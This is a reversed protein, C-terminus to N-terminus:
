GQHWAKFEGFAKDKAFLQNTGHKLHRLAGTGMVNLVAGIEAFLFPEDVGIDDAFTRSFGNVNYAMRVTVEDAAKM